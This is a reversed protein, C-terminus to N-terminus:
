YSTTCALVPCLRLCLHAKFHATPERKPHKQITQNRSYHLRSYDVKNSGNGHKNTILQTTHSTSPRTTYYSKNYASLQYM